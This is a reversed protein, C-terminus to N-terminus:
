FICVSSVLQLVWFLSVTIFIDISCSVLSDYFLYNGPSGSQETYFLSPIQPSVCVCVCVGVPTLGLDIACTCTTYDTTGAILSTPMKHANSLKQWAYELPLSGEKPECKLKFDNGIEESGDVYCRIGSPKVPFLFYILVECLLISNMSSCLAQQVVVAEHRSGPNQTSLVPLTCTTLVLERLKTWCLVPLCGNCLSTQRCGLHPEPEM